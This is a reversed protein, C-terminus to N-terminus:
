RRRRCRAGPVQLPRRGPLGALVAGVRGTSGLVRMPAENGDWGNFDGILSVGKANPAWVAFSVGTSRRRRTDHLRAPARRPDGVAARPPGRRVPAPGGRGPHAPVPVPRRRHPRDTSRGGGPLEVELRYDVLDTFPLAVAFLGPEVHSCRTAARRRGARGGRHRAAAAGPDRHPRRVRPRRPHSHPDHHEGDVLRDLDAPIAAGPAPQHAAETRTMERTVARM